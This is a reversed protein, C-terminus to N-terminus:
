RRRRRGESLEEGQQDAGEADEAKQAPLANLRKEISAILDAAEQQTQPSAEGGATLAGIATEEPPPMRARGGAVPPQLRRSRRRSRGRGGRSRCATAVPVPPLKSRRLRLWRCIRRRLFRRWRWRLWAGAAFAGLQPKHRCGSLGLTLGLRLLMAAQWDERLRRASGNLSTRGIQRVCPEGAVVAKRGEGASERGCDAAAVYVDNRPGAASAIRMRGCM